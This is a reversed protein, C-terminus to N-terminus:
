NSYEQTLIDEIIGSQMMMQFLATIREPTMANSFDELAEAVSHGEQLDLLIQAEVSGLRQTYIKKNKKYIMLSEPQQWLFDAFSEAPDEKRMCWIKYVSYPSEFIRMAEIFHVNFDESLSLEKIREVPLPDPTPTHYMDKFLWEFRALDHLFPFEKLNAMQNLFAPFNHGYDSLDYSSSPQAEIYQRCIEHFLDDGLVWWVAEFTEGLTETMRVIYSRRYVHFAQELSLKGAPKWDRHTEADLKGALINKKFLSQTENLKM